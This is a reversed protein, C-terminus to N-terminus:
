EPALEQPQRPGNSRGPLHLGHQKLVYRLTSRALGLRRAIESYNPGCVALAMELLKRQFQSTAENWNPLHEAKVGVMRVAEKMTIAKTGSLIWRAVVNHLERVNGPWEYACLYRRADASVTMNRGFDADHMAAFHRFLPIIDDTRERLPPVRLEVASLRYFLDSRFRDQEVAARLDQTGATIIRPGQAAANGAGMKQLSQKDFLPLLQAQLNPPLEDVHDLFLSGGLAKELFGVHAGRSEGSAGLRSGYLSRAFLHPPVSPLDVVVLNNVGRVSNSHIYNALLGKGSGTEGYLFVPVDSQAASRARALLHRMAPSKAVITTEM